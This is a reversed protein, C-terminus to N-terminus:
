TQKKPRGRKKASSLTSSTSPTNNESSLLVSPVNPVEPQLNNLNFPVVNPLNYDAQPLNVISGVPYIKSNLILPFNVIIFKM